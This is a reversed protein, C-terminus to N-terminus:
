ELAVEEEKDQQQQKDSDSLKDSLVLLLLLLINKNILLWFYIRNSTAGSLARRCSQKGRDACHVRAYVRVTYIHMRLVHIVKSVHMIREIYITDYNEQSFTVFM